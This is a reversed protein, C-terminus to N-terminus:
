ALILIVANVAVQKFTLFLRLFCLRKNKLSSFNNHVVFFDYGNGNQKEQKHKRKKRASAFLILIAVFFYKM